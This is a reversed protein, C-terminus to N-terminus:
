PEDGLGPNQIPIRDFRLVSYDGAAIGGTYVTSGFGVVRIQRGYFYEGPEGFRARFRARGQPSYRVIFQQRIGSGTTVINGTVYVNGRADIAVDEGIDLGSAPGDIRANWILKGTESDYSVTTADAATGIGETYGTVVVRGNANDVALATPEDLTGDPGDYRQLWMQQGNPDYKITVWDM